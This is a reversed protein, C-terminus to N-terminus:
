PPGSLNGAKARSSIARGALARCARPTLIQMYRALVVLDVAEEELLRGLKKSGGARNYAIRVEALDDRSVHGLRVLFTGLDEPQYICCAWALEGEVLVM